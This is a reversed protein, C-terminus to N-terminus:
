RADLGAPRWAIQPRSACGITGRSDAAILNQLACLALIIENAVAPSIAGRSPEALKFHRDEAFPSPHLRALAAFVISILRRQFDPHDCFWEHFRRAPLGLNPRPSRVGPPVYRTLNRFRTADLLASLRAVFHLLPERQAGALLTEQWPGGEAVGRSL